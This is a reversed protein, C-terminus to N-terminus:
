RLLGTQEQRLLLVIAAAPCACLPTVLSGVPLAARRGRDVGGHGRQTDQFEREEHRQARAGAPRQAHLVGGGAGQDEEPVDQVQM